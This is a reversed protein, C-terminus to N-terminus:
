PCAQGKCEAVAWLEARMQEVAARPLRGGVALNLISEPDVALDYVETFNTAARGNTGPPRFDAVLTTASANAVRLAVWRNSAGNILGADECPTLGFQKPSLWEFPTVWGVFEILMRERWPGGGGSGSGGGQAATLLLPVLSRGDRPATASPWANPVGALELLTPGLDVNMAVLASSAVGPAVGPGRVLLPVRTDHDYPMAKECWLGWSGLHYGHDSTFIVYTNELAGSAELLELAAGLYDDVSMLTRQRQVHLTDSGNILGASMPKDIGNDVVFHKGEWGVNWSPTRPATPFPVPASAHWPAPTAPLHPAHFGIYQVWPLAPQAATANRLFALSRNGLVATMYDTPGSRTIVGNDNYSNGFYVGEECLLFADSAAAAAGGQPQKWAPVYGPKCFTPEQNYWKGVQSVAYGANGLAVLLTDERQETFNGCWDATNDGLNHPYRGSFLSTRSPCCIPSTVHASTFNLGGSVLWRKLNPMVNSSGLEADMDDVEVLLFNPLAFAAPLLLSVQLAWM